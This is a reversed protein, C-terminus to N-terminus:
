FLCNKITLCDQVEIDINRVNIQSLVYHLLLHINLRYTLFSM